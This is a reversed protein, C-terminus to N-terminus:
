RSLWDPPLDLIEETTMLHKEEDRSIEKSYVTMFDFQDQRNELYAYVIERGIEEPSGKVLAKAKIMEFKSRLCFVGKLKIFNLAQLM